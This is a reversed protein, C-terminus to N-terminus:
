GIIFFIELRRVFFINFVVIIQFRRDYVVKEMFGDKIKGVWLDFDVVLIVKFVFDVGKSM